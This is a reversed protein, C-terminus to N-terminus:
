AEKTEVPGAAPSSPRRTRRLPPKAGLSKPDLGSWKHGQAFFKRRALITMLPKTFLFVVVVDLLTTLGLTFAFGQVKGVTVVFLVAAALFSVFDSVLITRRARPWGREVAPRLSRGERIEDRIREFFVIFSDATIGIAVIAGCVAPLNLAFGIAPGLLSMITYTLIASVLLSPIAIISLGRYFVLLYVVVLALGIAGAILGARLQDSGLAATVTTVSDERFTLPLAGYSLMNALSQAEEQSFRGTIEANGGTLAQSVYPDSVVNGDLVIAFQNQPSPNQALKGTIDAFKKAGKSTFEMTVTWGAATQTNFVAQAKKVDTGDVAAPGLIYKQWQGQSNEGCAVTPESPKVGKGATARVDQKTCDLTAYQAQLAAPIDGDSGSDATADTSPGTSAEPSGSATSGASPTADAKLGDTVARGQPSGTASPTASDTSSAKEGGSTGNDDGAEDSPSSSPDASASSSPSPTAAAGSLDTALVPRFYLKATTGVQERAQQSNTGKPINVIINDNGQTQVEAESVGLGNVRREMISVATDMNAKNIASEQGREPVARLTISTGGALDIGLRPATHGSAFMAGTLAVIAILILVLSRWPKSQAGASRGKKPAAM